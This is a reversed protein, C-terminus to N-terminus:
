GRRSEEDKRPLLLIKMLPPVPRPDAGAEVATGGGGVSAGPSPTPLSSGPPMGRPPPPPLPGTRTRSCHKLTDFMYVSARGEAMREASAKGVIVATTTRHTSSLCRERDDMNRTHTCQPGVATQQQVQQKAFRVFASVQHMASFGSVGLAHAKKLSEDYTRPRLRQAISLCMRM